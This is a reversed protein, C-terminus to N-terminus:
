ARRTTAIRSPSAAISSRRAITAFSIDLAVLAPAQQLEILARHAAEVREPADTIRLPGTPSVWASRGQPSLTKQLAATIWDSPLFGVAIDESIGPAAAGSALAAGAALAIWTQILSNVGRTYHTGGM